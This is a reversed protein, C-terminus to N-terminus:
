GININNVCPVVICDWRNWGFELATALLFTGTGTPGCFLFSAVPRNPDRLGARARRIARAVGRVARGQGKVRRSLEDELVQLRDMENSELKGIPIGSWESIVKAVTHEDVTVVVGDDSDPDFEDSDDDKDLLSDQYDLQAIAGAEDILDLATTNHSLTLTRTMTNLCAM